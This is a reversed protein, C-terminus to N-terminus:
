ENKVSGDSKPKYEYKEFDFFITRKLFMPVYKYCIIPILISTNERYKSYREPCKDYYRKLNKGEANCLGTPEMTLLIQMTFLPSLIGVWWLPDAYGNNSSSSYSFAFLCWWQFIEGFYNPHRSVAWVGDTCFDGKRGRKVWLAKQIDALIEILVGACFLIAFAIDYASFGPKNVQSSNVFLMPLSILFVWFAQAMWFVFFRFPQPQGGGKGLVEDFRSDGKREHARWALFILLWGRSCMFLITVLIKRPDDVWNLPADISGAIASWLALALYNVGGLIDYFTETKLSYAVAYGTLQIVCTIAAAIGYVFGQGSM